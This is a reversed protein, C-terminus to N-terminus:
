PNGRASQSLESKPTGRRASAATRDPRRSFSPALELCRLLLNEADEERGLRIAVEALMRIAPVDTPVKALHTKLLREATPLDNKIMAAAAQQLVPERTSCRIHRAYAADAAENDGIAMLHDGLVRWAEVHDPKLEVTRQLAKIADDGRGVAALTLGHEFHAAIWKPQEGLLPEILGLAAAPDGTLRRAAALLLQAPAYGPVAKLIELAQEAALRPDVKLLSDTRALAAELTGTPESATSM